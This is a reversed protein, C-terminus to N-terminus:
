KEKEQNVFYTTATVTFLLHQSKNAYKNIQIKSVKHSQQRHLIILLLPRKCARAWEFTISAIKNETRRAKHM